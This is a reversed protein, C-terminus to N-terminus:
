SRVDIVAYPLSPISPPQNRSPWQEHRLRSLIGRPSSEDPNRRSRPVLGYRTTQQAGIISSGCSRYDNRDCATDIRRSVPLPYEFTGHSNLVRKIQSILLKSASVNPTDIPRPEGCVRNRLNSLHNLPTLSIKPNM